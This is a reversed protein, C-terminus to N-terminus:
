RTELSAERVLPALLDLYVRFFLFSVNHFFLYQTLFSFHSSYGEDTIMLFLIRLYAGKLENVM